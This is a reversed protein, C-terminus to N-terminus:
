PIQALHIFCYLYLINIARSPSNIRKIINISLNQKKSSLTIPINSKILKTTPLKETTRIGKLSTLRSHCIPKVRFPRNINHRM